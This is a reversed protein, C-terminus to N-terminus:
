KVLLLKCEAFRLPSIIISFGEGFSKGSTGYIKGNPAFGWYFIIHASIALRHILSLQLHDACYLLVVLLLFSANYMVFSYLM